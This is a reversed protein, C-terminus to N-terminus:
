VEEAGEPYPAITDLHQSNLEGCRFWDLLWMRWNTIDLEITAAVEEVQTRRMFRLFNVILLVGSDSPQTQRPSKEHSLRWKKVGTWLGLVEVFFQADETNERNLSDYSRVRRKKVDGVFLMWQSAGDRFLLVVFDHRESIQMKQGYERLRKANDANDKLFEMASLPLITTLPTNTQEAENSIAQRILEAFCELIEANLPIDNDLITTLSPLSPPAQGTGSTKAGSSLWADIDAIMDIYVCANEDRDRMAQERARNLQTEDRRFATFLFSITSLSVDRGERRLQFTRAAALDFADGPNPVEDKPQIPNSTTVHRPTNASSLSKFVTGVQANVVPKAATPLPHFHALQAPRKIDCHEIAKLVKARDRFRLIADEHPECDKLQDGYTETLYSYLDEDGDAEAKDCLWQLQSILVKAM